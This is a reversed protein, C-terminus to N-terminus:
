WSRSWPLNLKGLPPFDYCLDWVMRLNRLTGFPHWVRFASQVLGPILCVLLTGEPLLRKAASSGLCTRMWCTKAESPVEVCVNWAIIRGETRVTAGRKTGRNYRRHGGYGQRRGRRYVDGLRNRRRRCRQARSVLGGAVWQM